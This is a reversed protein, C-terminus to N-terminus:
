EHDPQAIDDLLKWACDLNVGPRIGLDLTRVVFRKGPPETVEKRLTDNVVRDLSMGERSAEAEFREAVDDDLTVTKGM